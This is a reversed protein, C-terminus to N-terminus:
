SLFGVVTSNNTYIISVAIRNEGQKLQIKPNNDVMTVQDLKYGDEFLKLITVSYKESGKGKIIETDVQGNLSGLEQICVRYQLFRKMYDEAISDSVNLAQVNYEGLSIENEKASLISTSVEMTKPINKQSLLPDERAPPENNPQTELTESDLYNLSGNYGDKGSEIPLVASGGHESLRPRIRAVFTRKTTTSQDSILAAGVPLNRIFANSGIEPPLKSPTRKKLELIDQAFSLNHSILIDIQSLIEDSTASPQQTAVVLACGPMRGRKAYEILPDSAATKGKAPVLTHAEDVMLWTVPITHSKEGKGSEETITDMKDQRSLRTREDLIKKALLGVVLARTNDPLLSVDIISIQNPVSLDRISTGVTSFVGWQTASELRMKVARITNIHFSDEINQSQDIFDIMDRITYNMMRDPNSSTKSLNKIVEIILGSQPSKFYNLGFTNAWDEATLDRPRISFVNDFTGPSYRSVLDIPVYVRINDYKKPALGWKPLRNDPKDKKEFKMSWFTGMPDVIITGIGLNQEALEEAFVGLTYSKGSGTKGSIFIKHPNYADVLVKRGFHVDDAECIIGLYLTGDIGYNNYEELSRGIIVSYIEDDTLIELKEKVPPSFDKFLESLPIVPYTYKNSFSMSLHINIRSKNLLEQPCIGHLISWPVGYEPIIFSYIKACKDSM